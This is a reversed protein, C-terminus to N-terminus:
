PNKLLTILAKDLQTLQNEIRTFDSESSIRFVVGNKVTAFGLRKAATVLGSQAPIILLCKGKLIIHPNKTLRVMKKKLILLQKTFEEIKM